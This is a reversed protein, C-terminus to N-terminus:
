RQIYRRTLAKAHPYAQHVTPPRWAEEGREEPGPVSPLWTVPPLPLARPSRRVPEPESPEPPSGPLSAAFERAAAADRRYGVLEAQCNFIAWKAIPWPEFIMAAGNPFDEQTTTV